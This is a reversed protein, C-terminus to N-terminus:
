RKEKPSYHMNLDLLKALETFLLCDGRVVLSSMVPVRYKYGTKRPKTWVVETKTQMLVGKKEITLFVADEVDFGLEKSCIEFDVWRGYQKLIYAELNSM